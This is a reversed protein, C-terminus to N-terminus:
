SRTAGCIRGRGSHFAPAVRSVFNMIGPQVAALRDLQDLLVLPDEATITLVNFFATPRVKGYAALIKRTDWYDESHITAAANWDASM